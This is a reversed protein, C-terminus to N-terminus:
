FARTERGRSAGPEDLPQVRLAGWWQERLGVTYWRVGSEPKGERDLPRQWALIFLLKMKCIHIVKDGVRQFASFVM